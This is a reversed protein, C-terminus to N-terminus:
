TLQVLVNSFNRIWFVIILTPSPDSKVGSMRLFCLLVSSRRKDMWQKGAILAAVVTNSRIPTYNKNLLTLLKTTTGAIPNVTSHINNNNIISEDSEDSEDSGDEARFSVTYSM